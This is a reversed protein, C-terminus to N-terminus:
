LGLGPLWKPASVTEAAPAAGPAAEPAAAGVTASGPITLSPVHAPACWYTVWAGGLVEDASLRKEPEHLLLGSILAKADPSVTPLFPANFGNRIRLKLDESSAQSAVVVVGTFM